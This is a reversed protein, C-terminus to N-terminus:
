ISRIALPKNPMRLFDHMDCAGGTRRRQKFSVRRPAVVSRDRRPDVFAPQPVSPRVSPSVSPRHVARPLSAAPHGDACVRGNTKSLIAPGNTRGTGGPADSRSELSLPERSARTSPRRNHDFAVSM